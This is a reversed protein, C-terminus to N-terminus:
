ADAVQRRAEFAAGAYEAVVLPEDRGRTQTAQHAADIGMKVAHDMNGTEYRWTGFRGRALVNHRALWPDITALAADRDTTPVPYAYPIDDLHTSAVEADEPVLQLKRIHTDVAQTLLRPDPTAATSPRSIEAIYSCYRDTRGRPVHAAAYKAFNTLRYFPVDPDPFYLWSRPDTLPSKYGIGVVTVSTHALRTVARRVATPPQECSQVLQDLPGTWILTQYRLRDGSALTVTRAEPHVMAIAAGFRIHDHTIRRALRRFIEGTGGSRPFAFRSNPGWGLDDEGTAVARAARRWDVVAVRESIWDASLRSLRTAWVKENYPRMFRDVIGSGFTANAWEEFNRPPSRTQQTQALALDALCELADTEDLHHLNNQFPYPVYRNDVHIYSSRDHWLVDDGLMEAVLRDFEGFHSFVVHGGRDWTFGRADRFSSALGGPEWCAEVLLFDDEGLRQLEYACALGCPGAGAILM